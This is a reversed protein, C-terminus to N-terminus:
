EEDASPWQIRGLLDGLLLLAISVVTGMGANLVGVSAFGWGMYWGLADGAWFGAWALVLDIVLKRQSGGRLFHFAAGYLTSLVIGFLITPLPM